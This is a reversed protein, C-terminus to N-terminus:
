AVGPETELYGWTLSNPLPQGVTAALIRAVEADGLRSRLDILLAATDYVVGFDAFREATRHERVVGVLRTAERPDAALRTVARELLCHVALDSASGGQEVVWRWAQELHDAAAAQDGSERSVVALLRHAYARDVASVSDDGIVQRLREAAAGPRSDLRDLAARRLALDAAWGPADDDELLRELLDVDATAQKLHGLAARMEAANAAGVLRIRASAHPPGDATEWPIFFQEAESWRGHQCLIVGLNLGTSAQREAPATAFRRRGAAEAAALPSLGATLVSGDWQYDVWWWPLAFSGPIRAALLAEAEDVWGQYEESSRAVQLALGLADVLLTPDGLQRAAALAADVDPRAEDWRSMRLACRTRYAILRTRGLTPADSRDLAQRVVAEAETQLGEDWLAAAAHAALTQEQDPTGHLHTHALAPRLHHMEERLQRDVRFVDDWTDDFHYRLLDSYYAAHRDALTTPSTGRALHEAAFDRISALLGYRDEPQTDSAPHVRVLSRDVLLGMGDLVDLDDEGPDLAPGCVAEAAALTFTGPFSSLRDLLQQQEPDLADYSWAITARLTQHRTPLDRSGGTLVKLANELRPLLADPSLLRTRAAALEIALPLGDLRTCIAAVAAANTPTLNFDPRVGAARTLFLSVAAYTSLSAVEAETWQGRHVPPLPLPDIPYEREGRLRLPERCTALVRVDPAARVIQDVALAADPLLQELNDLVLLLRKGKLGALLGSEVGGADEGIGLTTAILAPVQAMDTVASLDVFWVGDGDGTALEAAVQLALRTKGMGGFGVITVLRERTVLDVLERVERDRGLFSSTQVPLNHAARDLSALPPFEQRQGPFLLHHVHEPRTLDKMRHEGLDTVAVGDPLRDRVLEFLAASLLVQGGAGLGRLRACRNVTSGFLNGDRVTVEGAHIGVRVRIEIGAPWPEVALERQFAVVAAVAAVASDFAAFVADGEGQDVPRWGGHAAVAGHVIEHHRAMVANMADPHDAWLRTSGEVDTMVLVATSSGPVTPVNQGVAASVV